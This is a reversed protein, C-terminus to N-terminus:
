NGTIKKNIMRFIDLVLSFIGYCNISILFKFNRFFIKKPINKLCWSTFNWYPIIKGIGFNEMQAIVGIMGSRSMGGNFIHLLLEDVVYLEGYKLISLVTAADNWLFSEKVFCKRIQDTRYMGYFIQNHNLNKFYANVRKEYPGEASYTELYGFKQEIRKKIRTIFSNKVNQENNKSKGYLQIKTICCSINKNLDLINSVKELFTPLM